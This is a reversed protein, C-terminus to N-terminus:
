TVVIRQVVRNMRGVLLEGGRVEMRCVTTGADELRALPRGSPAFLWLPGGQEAAVLGNRSGLWLVDHFAFRSQVLVESKGSSADLRYLPQTGGWVAAAVDGNPLLAVGGVSSPLAAVALPKGDSVRFAGARKGWGGAAGTAGDASFRISLASSIDGRWTVSGTTADVATLQNAGVLLTSTHPVFAVGMVNGAIGNPVPLAKGQADLIALQVAPADGGGAVVTGADNWAAAIMRSSGLSQDHGPPDARYGGLIAGNKTDLVLLGPFGGVALRDGRPSVALCGGQLLVLTKWLARGSTDYATVSGGALLVYIVKGDPSSGIGVPTDSLKIEQAVAFRQPLREPTAPAAHTSAVVMKADGGPPRGEIASLLWDVGAQVDGFVWVNHFGAQYGSMGWQIYARGPGPFTATVPRNIHGREWSTKGLPHGPLVVTHAYINEFNAENHDLVPGTGGHEGERKFPVIEYPPNVAVTMGKARLAGAIRGAADEPGFVAFKKPDLAFVRRCDWHMKEFPPESPRGAFLDVIKKADSFYIATTGFDITAQGNAGTAHITARVTKTTGTLWEHAEVTWTGPAANAGVPIVHRFIGSSTDGALRTPPEPGPGYSLPSGDLPTTARFLESALNGEPDYLRLRFPLYGSIGWTLTVLVARQSDTPEASLTLEGPPATLYLWCAGDGAALQLPAKGDQVPISGGNLLDYLAGGAPVSITTELPIPDMQTHRTNLPDQNNNGMLLYSAEGVRHVSLLMSNPPANSKFPRPGLWGALDAEFGPALDLTYKRLAYDNFLVGQHPPPNPGEYAYATRVAGPIHLADDKGQVLTGGSAVYGDLIRRLEPKALALGPCYVVRWSKLFDVGKEVVEYEDIWNPSMGTSMVRWMTMAAANHHASAYVQFQSGKTSQNETAVDWAYQTHSMLVAVPARTRPMRRMIDGVLAMRRNVEAIELVAIADKYTGSLSWYHNPDYQIGELKTSWPLWVEQRMRAYDWSGWMPLFYHPRDWAWGDYSRASIIPGWSGAWDSYGGHGSLVRYPRNMRSDVGDTVNGSSYSSALQNITLFPAHAQDVASVSAWWAQELYKLRMSVFDIWTGMMGAYRPMTQALPGKPIEKGTLKLFDQVQTPVSFPSSSVKKGDPGFFPWWTLGPEDFAQIGASPYLRNTLTALGMKWTVARQVWPDGWDNKPDLNMQHGGGMVCMAFPKMRAAVYREMIDDLGPKREREWIMDSTFYMWGGKALVTPPDATMQMWAGVFYASAHEDAHVAFQVLPAKTVGDNASVSYIGPKLMSPPFSILKGQAKTPGRCQIPLALVSDDEHRVELAVSESPGAYVLTLEIPEATTFQTRTSALSLQIPGSSGSAVDPSAPSSACAAGPLADIAIGATLGAILQRRSLEQDTM